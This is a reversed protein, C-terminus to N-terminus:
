TQVWSKVTMAAPWSATRSNCYFGVKTATLHNTKTETLFSLFNEGDRSFSMIRNSADEGARLWIPGSHLCGQLKNDGSHTTANTWDRCTLSNEAILSGADCGFTVLKTGDNWAFGCFLYQASVLNPIICMTITYTGVPVDKDYYRLNDTASAAASLYIGGSATTSASASNRATFDALVPATFDPYIRSAIDEALATVFVQASGSLAIANNSNTSKLVSRTLTTGSSTYVGRGVESSAGDEIGYSVTQGNTIGADAFTLFGSVASGLTITGTGATATSVRALNALVAM